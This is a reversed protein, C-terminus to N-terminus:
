VEMLLSVMQQGEPLSEDKLGFSTTWKKVGQVNADYKAHVQQLRGHEQDPEGHYDVLRDRLKQDGEPAPNDEAHYVTGTTPDLKRHSLRRLIEPQEVELFLYADAASPYIFPAGSFTSTPDDYPASSSLLKSWQEFMKQEQDKPRDIM